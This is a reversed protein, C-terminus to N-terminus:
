SPMPIGGSLTSVILISQYLKRLACIFNVKNASSSGGHVKTKKATTKPADSMRKM